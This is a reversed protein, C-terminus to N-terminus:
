EVPYRHFLETDKSIFIDNTLIPPQFPDPHEIMSCNFQRQETHDSPRLTNAFRAYSFTPACNFVMGKGAHILQVPQGKQWSVSNADVLTARFPLRMENPHLDRAAFLGLGAEEITSTSIYV